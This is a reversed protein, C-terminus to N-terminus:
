GAREDCLLTKTCYAALSPSARLTLLIAGLQQTSAHARTSCVCHAHGHRQKARGAGHLRSRPPAPCDFRLVRSAARRRRRPLVRCLLQRMAHATALTRGVTALAWAAVSCRLTREAPLNRRLVGSSRAAARKMRCEQAYGAWQALARRAAAGPERPEWGCSGVSEAVDRAQVWVRHAPSGAGQAAAPAAPSALVVARPVVTGPPIHASPAKATRPKAGPPTTRVGALAAPGHGPWAM